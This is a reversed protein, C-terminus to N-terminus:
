AYMRQHHIAWDGTNGGTAAAIQIQVYKATGLAGTDDVWYTTAPAAASILSAVGFLMTVNEYPCAAPATGDDLWTAWVTATVTGAACDLLLQYGSKGYGAMDVFYQYAGGPGGGGGDAGNVVNALTESVYHQSIPDIEETRTSTTLATYGALILRGTGVEVALSYYAGAADVGPATILRGTAPRPLIDDTTLITRNSGSTVGLGQLNGDPM